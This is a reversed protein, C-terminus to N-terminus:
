PMLITKTINKKMLFFETQRHKNLHIQGICACIWSYGFLDLKNLRLCEKKLGVLQVYNTCVQVLLCKHCLYIELLALRCMTGKDKAIRALVFM